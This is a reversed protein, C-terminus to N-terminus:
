DAAALGNAADGFTSSGLPKENPLEAFVGVVVAEGNENPGDLDDPPSGGRGCVAPDNPPNPLVGVVM